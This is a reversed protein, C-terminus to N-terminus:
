KRAAPASHAGCALAAESTCLTSFDVAKALIRHRRRANTLLPPENSFEAVGQGETLTQLMGKCWVEIAHATLADSM